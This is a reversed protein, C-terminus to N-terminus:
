DNSQSGKPNQALAAEVAGLVTERRIGAQSLVRAAVGNGALLGLLLHETGIYNHNLELAAALAGNLAAMVRPTYSRSPGASAGGRPVIQNVAAEAAERTLPASNLIVAALGEPQGYLALLLHETGIYGHGWEQAVREAGTLAGRARPTFRELTPSNPGLLTRASQKQQAAQKSVGLAEGIESWSHGAHRAQDVFYGLVADGIESLERVIASATQLRHLPEGDSESDVRQIVEHLSSTPV